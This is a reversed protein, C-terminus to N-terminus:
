PPPVAQRFEYITIEGNRYVPTLYPPAEAASWSVPAYQVEGTQPDTLPSRGLANVLLVYRIGSEALLAQRFADDTEAAFFVLTNNLKQGYRVTESWHGNYSVNGSLAPVYAALHPRLAFNPFRRHATPDPSVLVPADSPTNTRLWELAAREDRTLYPRHTTSSANDALRDLDRSVFLINSPVLLAFAAGVAIKPFDGSLRATLAALAVGALLCLPLHEGMLLKRQFSVPVYAIAIGVVAWVQVLRLAPADRFLAAAPRYAVAGIVALALVLGYGLLIQWVPPSLTNSVFAREFFVPEVRLAWYQYATTPLAALGAVILRAWGGFDVRRAAIDRAIRWVFAVSFLHIVDYSHINGLLAGSVAAPWIDRLRGTREAKLLSVFFVAMLALSATFLPAYYLSLFTIAEPQWLDIPGQEPVAPNVVWGLGSAFCVLAFAIRRAREDAIATRLLALVAWLLLAGCAVRALHHVAVLSLPTIRAINGLLLFFLNFLVGRQPETTFQNRIFFNGQEAQRMWSLYVASDDINYLLGSYVHGSPTVAWAYLYPASALLLALAGLLPYFLRGGHRRDTLSHASEGPAPTEDVAEPTVGSEKDDRGEIVSVNM